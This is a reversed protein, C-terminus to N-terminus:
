RADIDRIILIEGVFYFIIDKVFQNFLKLFFSEFDKKYIYCGSAFLNLRTLEM